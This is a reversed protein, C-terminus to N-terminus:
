RKRRVTAAQIPAPGLGNLLNAAGAVRGEYSVSNCAHRALQGSGDFNSDFDLDNEYTAEMGNAFPFAIEVRM